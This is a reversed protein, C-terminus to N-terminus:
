KLWSVKYDRLDKIGRNMCEEVVSDIKDEPIRSHGKIQEKLNDKWDQRAKAAKFEETVDVTAFLLVEISASYIQIGDNVKPDGDISFWAVSDKSWVTLITLVSDEKISCIAKSPNLHAELSVNLKLKKM